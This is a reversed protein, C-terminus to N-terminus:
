KPVVVAAPLVLAKKTAANPKIHIRYWLSWNSIDLKPNLPDKITKDWFQKDTVYTMDAIATQILKQVPNSNPIKASVMGALAANLQEACTQASVLAPAKGLFAASQYIASTLSNSMITRNWDAPWPFTDTTPTVLVYKDFSAQDKFNSAYTIGNSSVFSETLRKLNKRNSESLNKSGFRLMNEALTNKM